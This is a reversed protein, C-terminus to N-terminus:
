ATSRPAAGESGYEYFPVEGAEDGLAVQHRLTLHDGTSGALREFTRPHPEFSHIEASPWAHRTEAAFQGIHAGVDFVTQLPRGWM